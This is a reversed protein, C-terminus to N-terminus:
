KALLGRQEIRDGGRAAALWAVLDGLGSEAVEDRLRHLVGLGGDLVGARTYGYQDLLFVARGARPSRARVARIAEDVKENFDATWIHVTRGLQEKFPSAEIQSRLFETHSHKQDIFIFEANIRFGKPRSTELKEEMAAVTQLLILPSGPVTERGFQYRGGGAYGDIFTISLQEQYSTLFGL